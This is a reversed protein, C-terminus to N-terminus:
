RATFILKGDAVEATLMENKELYTLYAAVTSLTLFYQPVTQQIQYENMIRAVVEERTRPESLIQQVREVTEHIAQLNTIIIHQLSDYPGGHGPLIQQYQGSSTLKELQQLTQLAGDLDFHYLLRYKTIVEEPFVADATLLVQEPTILGLQGPTQGHLDLVQWSQGLLEVESDPSLIQDIPIPTGQLFKTQLAQLPSASYLYYPEYEPHELIPRDAESSMVTLEPYHRKFESAGGFHDAHAHTIILVSPTIDRTQLEKIVKRATRDDLGADILVAQNEVTHLIVKSPLDFYSLHNTVQKFM